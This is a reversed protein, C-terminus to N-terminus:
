NPTGPTLPVVILPLLSGSTFRLVGDTGTSNWAMKVVAIDGTNSCNWQPLGAADFPTADFCVAIRPDPLVNRARNLWDDMDWTAIATPTTCAIKFCNEGTASFAAAGTLTTAVLYPNTAATTRIAISPNGRMKDALERALTAAVSQNRTEKNAQMAAAQMGVAGLMGLSFIVLAILVELISFGAQHRPPCSKTRGARVRRPFMINSM